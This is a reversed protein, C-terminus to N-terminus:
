TIRRNSKQAIAQEGPSLLAGETRTLGTMPNVVNINALNTASAVDPTPTEPLPPTQIEAQAVEQVVPEAV